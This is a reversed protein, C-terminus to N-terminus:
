ASISVINSDTSYDVVPKPCVRDRGDRKAEYLLADARQFLSKYSEGPSWQAVGFSASCRAVTDGERRSQDPLALRLREALGSAGSEKCNWVLLCFEEGGVRGAEDSPRIRAAILRGFTAIVQDGAAHGWTDNVRKFHDIDAVILSVDVREDRARDLLHNAAMEFEARSPLGSLPDVRAAEREADIQDRVLSALFVMGLGVSFLGLLVVNVAQLASTGFNLTEPRGELLMLQVPRTFGHLSFLGLLWIMVRDLPQRSGSHWLSVAGIAMILASGGNQALILAMPVQAWVSLWVLVSSCVTVALYAAIPSPQGLRRVAGWVLGIAGGSAVLNILVAMPASRGDFVLVVLLFSVVFCAYGLSFGLTHLKHRDRAWLYGFVCTLLLAFAPTIMSLIQAFM